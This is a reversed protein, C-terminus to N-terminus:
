YNQLISRAKGAESIFMANYMIRDKQRALGGKHFGRTDAFIITGAPGVAKFWATEPVVRAMQEDTSRKASRGPEKFFEPQAKKYPGKPHSGRAYIFPGATEDVDTLYVFIRFIYRDEPDQHWLQSRRPIGKITFTHWVNYFVLSASVGMYADAIRQISPQEVFRSFTADSQKKNELLPFIFGKKEKMEEAENRAAELPGKLEMELKQSAERLAEFSALSGFLQKASTVAIGNQNLEHVIRREEGELISKKRFEYNAWSHFNDLYKWKWESDKFSRWPKKLTQVLFNDPLTM